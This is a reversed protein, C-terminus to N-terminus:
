NSILAALNSNILLISLVLDNCCSDLLFYICIENHDFDTDDCYDHAHFRGCITLAWMPIRDGFFDMLIHVM